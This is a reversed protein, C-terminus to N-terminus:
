SAAAAAGTEGDSRQHGAHDRVQKLLHLEDLLGEPAALQDPDRLVPRTM